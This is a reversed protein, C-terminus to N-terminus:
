WASNLGHNLPELDAEITRMWTQRPRGPRRKLDNPLGHASVHLARHTDQM